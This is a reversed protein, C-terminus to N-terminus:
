ERFAAAIFAAMECLFSKPKEIYLWHGADPIVVSTGKAGDPLLRVIADTCGEVPFIKSKEGAMAFLRIEAPWHRLTHRWDLQTHDAMLRGLWAPDCRLTEREAEELAARVRPDDRNESVVCADENARAFAEFDNVLASQLRALAEPTDCGLSGLAWDPSSYQLPAQDVTVVASVLGVAEARFLDIFSWIIAAGMSSGVLLVRQRRTSTERRSHHFYTDLVCKLDVALRAVHASHDSKDSDGHGRLDPALIGDVRADVAGDVVEDVFGRWYKRSGSWGHLLVLHVEDDDADRREKRLDTWSDYVLKVGDNMTVVRTTERSHVAM